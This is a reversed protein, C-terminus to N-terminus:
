MSRIKTYRRLDPGLYRFAWIGLGAAVVGATIWAIRRRDLRDQDRLRLYAKWDKDSLDSLASQARAALDPM